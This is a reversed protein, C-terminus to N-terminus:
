SEESLGQCDRTLEPPMHHVARAAFNRIKYLIAQIFPIDRAKLDMRYALERLQIMSSVEHDGRFFGVAKLTRHLQDIVAEYQEHTAAEPELSPTEGHIIRYIEYLFVTVSHALNFSTGEPTPIVALTHCIDIEDRNLGNDERGFVLATRGRLLRDRNSGMVDWIPRPATRNFRTQHVTGIILNCGAVADYLRSFRHAKELLPYGYLAMKKAELCLYDVDGVIKITDVGFNSASRAMAGINGPYIPEVLVIEIQSMPM